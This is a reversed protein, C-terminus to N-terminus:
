GDIIEAGSLSVAVDEYSASFGIREVAINEGNFIVSDGLKLDKDTVIEGSHKYVNALQRYQYEAVSQAISDTILYNNEISKINKTVSGVSVVNSVVNYPKGTITVFTSDGDDGTITLVIRDSYTDQSVITASNTVFVQVSSIDVPYASYVIEVEQPESSLGIEELYGIEQSSATPSVSYTYKSVSIGLIKEDNEVLETEDVIDDATLEGKYELTPKTIEVVDNDGAKLICCGAEAILRLAERHPVETIYGKSIITDLSSDVLVSIGGDEAVERAWDGLSRGQPYVKGKRFIATNLQHLVDYGDIRLITGDGDAITSQSYYEGFANYGTEDDKKIYVIIRQGEQLGIPLDRISKINFVGDNFVEFSVEGTDSYDASLDITKSASISIIVDENFDTNTGFSVFHLRARQYPNVKSFEIRVRNWGDFYELNSYNALTNGVVEVSGLLLDDNYYCLTFDKAICNSPFRLTIGYSSHYMGFRYEIYEDIEGNADATNYSEWGVNYKANDDPITFSGDLVFYDQELYALKIKDNNQLTTDEAVFDSESSVSDEITDEILTKDIIGYNIRVGKIIM